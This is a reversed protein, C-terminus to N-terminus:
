VPGDAVVVGGGAVYQRAGVGGLGGGGRLVGADAIVALANVGDIPRAVVAAAGM